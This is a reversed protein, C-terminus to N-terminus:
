GRWSVDSDGSGDLFDAATGTRRRPLHPGPSRAAANRAESQRRPLAAGSPGGGLQPPQQAFLAVGGMGPNSPVRPLPSRGGVGIPTADLSAVAPYPYRATTPTSPRGRMSSSGSSASAVPAFATQSSPHRSSMAAVARGDSSLSSPSRVAVPAAAASSPRRAPSGMDAGSGVASFGSPPRAPSGGGAAYAGASLNSPRRTLSDFAAPSHSPPLGPSRAPSASAPVQRPHRLPSGADVPSARTSMGSPRRPLQAGVADAQGPLAVGGEPARTRPTGSRRAAQFLLPTAARPDQQLPPWVAPAGTVSRPTPVGRSAASMRPPMALLESVSSKRHVLTEFGVDDVDVGGFSSLGGAAYKSPLSGVATAPAHASFSSSRRPSRGVAPAGGASVNSPRRSEPQGGIHALANSSFSSSRRPSGGAVFAGSGSLNSPRRPLSADGARAVSTSLSAHHRPPSGVAAPTLSSFSGPRRSPSSGIAPLHRPHRLPSGADVPSARSISRESPRRPLPAGFADAQGPLAIGSESGRAGGPTISRRSAQFLPPTAARSDQYLSQRSRAGAAGSATSSRPLAAAHGGASPVRSALLESVRSKRHVAADFGFDDVDVVAGGAASTRPPPQAACSPRRGDGQAPTIVKGDREGRRSRQMLLVILVAVLLLGVLGAGVAIGIVADQGLAAGGGAVAAPLAAAQSASPSPLQTSQSPAVSSSASLQVQLPLCSFPRHHLM